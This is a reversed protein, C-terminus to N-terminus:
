GFLIPSILAQYENNRSLKSQQLGVIPNEVIFDGNSKLVRLSDPRFGILLGSECGVAHFPLLRFRKQWDGSLNTGTTDTLLNEIFCIVDQSFFPKLKAYEVVVVSESTLPDVLQNGTDLFAKLKVERDGWKLVVPCICRMEWVQRNVIRWILKGLFYLVTLHVIFRLILPIEKQFFRLNLMDIGWHFGSMLFSLVYFTLFCRKFNHWSFECVGILLLLIPWLILYVPPWMAWATLIGGSFESLLYCFQLVGGLVGGILLRWFRLRCANICGVAYLLAMDQMSSLYASLLPVDLYIPMVEM